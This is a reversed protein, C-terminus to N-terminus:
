ESKTILLTRLALAAPVFLLRTAQSAWRPVRYVRNKETWLRNKPSSYERIGSIQTQEGLTSGNHQPGTTVPASSYITLLISVSALTGAAMTLLFAKRSLRLLMPMNRYFLTKTLLVLALLLPPYFLSTIFVLCYLDMGKAEANMFYVDQCVAKAACSLTTLVLLAVATGKSPPPSARNLHEGPLLDETSSLVLAETGSGDMSRRTSLDDFNIDLALTGVGQFTPSDLCSAAASDQSATPGDPLDVHQLAPAYVGRLLPHQDPQHQLRDLGGGQSM